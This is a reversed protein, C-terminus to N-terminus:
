LLEEIMQDLKSFLKESAVEMEKFNQIIKKSNNDKFVSNNEIYELNNNVSKHVINLPEDMKKFANTNGFTKEGDGAYWIGIKCDKYDQFVESEQSDLVSAYAEAKYLVHDVKISTVMLGHHIKQSLKASQKALSNVESFINEFENVVAHSNHAIESIKDSNNRMEHADQQLTSINMEIESTAKQTREALKRVEDAVVAFGRGHEGARAAEITANLALLNTQDAIDKILNVVDSIESSRKELTIIGKHSSSIIDVLTDLQQSIQAVNYLSNSSKEATKHSVEAIEKSNNQAFEIDHQINSFGGATGGSINNLEQSLEGKIKSNQGDAIFGIVKALEQSTNKFIGHLGSSYPKRYTKGSASVKISTKIERIFAELQDLTDNLAWAFDSEESNDDPINTVRGELDGQAVSKLVRMMSASLESNSVKNNKGKFLSLLNM